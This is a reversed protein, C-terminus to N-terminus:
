PERRPTYLSLMVGTLLYGCLALGFAKFFDNTALGGALTVVVLAVTAITLAGLMAAFALRRRMRRKTRRSTSRM